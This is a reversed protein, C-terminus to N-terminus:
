QEEQQTKLENIFTKAQEVVSEFTRGHFRQKLGDKCPQWGKTSKWYAQQMPLIIEWHKEWTESSRGHGEFECYCRLIIFNHGDTKPNLSLDIKLLEELEKM